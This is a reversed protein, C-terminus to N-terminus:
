EGAEGNIEMAARLDDLRDIQEDYGNDYMSDFLSDLTAKFEKYEDARVEVTEPASQEFNQVVAKFTPNDEFKVYNTEPNISASDEVIFVRGENCTCEYGNNGIKPIETEPDHVAKYVALQRQNRVSLERADASPAGHTPVEYRGLLEPTPATTQAYVTYTNTEM